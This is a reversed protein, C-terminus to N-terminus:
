IFSPGTRGEDGRQGGGSDVFKMRLGGLTTVPAESFILTITSLPSTTGRSEATAGATLFLAWGSHLPRHRTRDPTRRRNSNLSRFLTTYPFLTSKPPHRKM